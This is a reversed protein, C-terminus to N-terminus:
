FYKVLIIGLRVCTAFKFIGKPWQQLATTFSRCAARDDHSMHQCIGLIQLSIARVPNHIHCCDDHQVLLSLEYFAEDADKLHGLKRQCLHQLFLGFVLPPIETRRKGRERNYIELYLDPICKDEQIDITGLLHRKLVTEIPLHDIGAEKYDKRTLTYPNFAHPASIRDKSIQVLRFAHNYRGNNYCLMAQYLIYAVSDTRCRELINMRETLNQYYTRNCTGDAFSNKSGSISVETMLKHLWTKLVFGQHSSIPFALYYMLISIIATSMNDVFHFSKALYCERIIEHAICTIDLIRTCVMEIKTHMIFLMGDALSQCRLLSKYGEKYLVRLHQLLKDRNRGEIKGAFMNNQPIFFNPCYSCSVWQLLRHFCNWFCSLLASPNWQNSTTTIEWFLATKLFYSCLLGKVDPNVDIAEKLFIKLLGYCLFQTHNMAYILKKEALSFSMRWETNEFISQKAGIPVFLVGDNVISLITDYSPWAIRDLRRICDHANNPWIDCRLCFALDYEIPGFTGSACPGHILESQSTHSERWHKSSLYCGNIDTSHILRLNTPEGILRLLTFGPKTMENEMVLLTTNSNYIAMYSDSPIVKINRYIFMWDDDSSKLRLGEAKSGSFCPMTKINGLESELRSIDDRLDTTQRRINIIIEPGIIRDLLAHTGRSIRRLRGNDM